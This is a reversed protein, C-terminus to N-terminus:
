DFFYSRSRVLFYVVEYTLTLRDMVSSPTPNTKAWIAKNRVLWGDQALALLLREPALLLSKAPAGYKPHRSFSDGLNLWFSGTPVLVRALERTVERLDAVGGSVTSELGLQGDVGYNRLAYYPPSTVCCHVSKAPLSRLVNLCDGVHITACSVPRIGGTSDARPGRDSM